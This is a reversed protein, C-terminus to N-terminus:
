RVAKNYTDNLYAKLPSDVAELLTTIPNTNDVVGNLVCYYADQWGTEPYALTYVINSQLMKYVQM